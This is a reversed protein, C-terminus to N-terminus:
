WQMCRWMCDGASSLGVVIALISRIPTDGFILSIYGVVFCAISSALFILWLGHHMIVNVIPDDM